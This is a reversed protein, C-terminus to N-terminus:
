ETLSKITMSELAENLSTDTKLAKKLANKNLSETTKSSILTTYNNDKLYQLVDKESTYGVNEKSFYTVYIDDVVLETEKADKMAKLLDEEKLQIETDVKSIEEKYYNQKEELEKKQNKLDFIEKILEEQM